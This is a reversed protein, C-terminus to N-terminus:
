TWWGFYRTRTPANEVDRRAVRRALRRFFRKYAGVGRSAHPGVHQPRKVFHRACAGTQCRRGHSAPADVPRAAVRYWAPLAPLAHAVAWRLSHM